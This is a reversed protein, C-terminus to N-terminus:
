RIHDLYDIKFIVEFIEIIVQNTDIDGGLKEKEDPTNMYDSFDVPVLDLIQIKIGSILM